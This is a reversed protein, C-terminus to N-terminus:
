MLLFIFKHKYSRNNRKLYTHHSEHNFNLILTLFIIYFVRIYMLQTDVSKVSMSKVSMTQYFKIICAFFTNCYKIDRNQCNLPKFQM